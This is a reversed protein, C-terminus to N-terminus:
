NKQLLKKEKEVGSLLKLSNWTCGFVLGLFWGWNSILQYRELPEKDIVGNAALWVMHDWVFYVSMGIQQLLNLVEFKDALKKLQLTQLKQVLALENGLRFLRRANAGAKFLNLFKASSDKDATYSSLYWAIFRAGYQIIKAIKDKGNVTAIYTIFKDLTVANTAM